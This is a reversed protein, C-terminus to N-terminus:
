IGKRGKRICQCVDDNHLCTSGRACNHTDRVYDYHNRSCREKLLRECIDKHMDCVTGSENCKCRGFDCRLTFFGENHCELDSSFKKITGASGTVGEMQLTSINQTVLAFAIQLHCVKSTM